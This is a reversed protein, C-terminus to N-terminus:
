GGRALGPVTVRKRATNGTPAATAAPPREGDPRDLLVFLVHDMAKRWARAFASFGENHTHVGDGALLNRRDGGAQFEEFCYAIPVKERRCTEILAANYRAEPQSAPDQFGRPPITGIVPVTGHKECAAAIAKLDEMAPPIAKAAKSNNTGYLILCFEPNVEALEQEIRKRGFSTRMSAYGRGVVVYRGLAAEVGQPYNTAGTLSDGFCLVRGKVVKGVGAAHIRRVRAAYGVRDSAQFTPKGQLLSGASTASAVASWASPNDQFDVALVRYRYKGAAPPQDLYEPTGSEGVKHFAGDNGARSVVYM